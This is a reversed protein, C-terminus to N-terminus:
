VFQPIETSFFWTRVHTIFTPTYRYLSAFHIFEVDSDEDNIRACLFLNGNCSTRNLRGQFYVKKLTVNSVQKGRSAHM